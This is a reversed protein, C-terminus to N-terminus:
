SPGGRSGKACGTLRKCSQKSDVGLSNGTQAGHAVGGTGCAGLAEATKLDSAALARARQNNGSQTLAGSFGGLRNLDDASGKSTYGGPILGLGTWILGHQMVFTLLQTVTKFKDGTQRGSHTFKAALKEKGGQVVWMKASADMFSKCQTSMRGRCTPTGFIIADAQKPDDQHPDIDSVSILQAQAGAVATAGRV